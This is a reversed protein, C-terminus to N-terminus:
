ATHEIAVARPLLQVPKAEPSLKLDVEGDFLGVTGDFMEPFILKLDSLPDGTKKGLPLHQQWKQLLPSYNIECEDTIHVAEVQQDVSVKRQICTDALTVLGFM